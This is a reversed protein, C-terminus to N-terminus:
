FGHRIAAMVFWTLAFALLLLAPLAFGLMSHLLSPPRKM